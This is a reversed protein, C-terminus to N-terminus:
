CTRRKALLVLLGAALSSAAVVSFGMGAAPLIIFPALAGGIQGFGGTVAIGRARMSSPFSQGTQTYMLPVTLGITFTLMFGFAMVVANTPALGIILFAIAYVFLTVAITFKRELRDDIRM